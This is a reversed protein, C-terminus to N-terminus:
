RREDAMFRYRRELEQRGTNKMVMALNHYGQWSAPSLEIARRFVQEARKYARTHFLLTGLVLFLSFSSKPLAELATELFLIAEEKGKGNELCYTLSTVFRENEPDKQLLKKYLPVAQQYNGSKRHCIAMMRQVQTDDGRFLLLQEGRHICEKYRGLHYEGIMLKRLVSVTEGFHDLHHQYEEVLRNLVGKNGERYQEEHLRILTELAEKQEPDLSLAEKLWSEGMERQGLSLYISGIAMRLYSDAEGTEQLLLKEGAQATELDAKDLKWLALIRYYSSIENGPDSREIRALTHLLEEYRGTQWQVMAIGYRAELRGRDLELARRFHNEAWTFEGARRFSEGIMLRIDVGKEGLKIVRLAHYAAKRYSEEEYYALALQYEQSVPDDMSTRSGSKGSTLTDDRIAALERNGEEQMGLEFLLSVRRYRIIDDDPSLEQALDYAELAKETEGYERYIMGLYLFLLVSEVGQERLYTFHKFASQIDGRHFIRIAQIYLCNLYAQFLQDGGKKRELLSAFHNIAIDHRGARYYSFALYTEIQASGPSRGLARKLQFIAERPRGSVFYARGLFFMGSVSDPKTRHYDRLCSIALDYEGLAHYSRGLFLAVEPLLEWLPYLPLLLEVSRSYDRKKGADIAKQLTKEM